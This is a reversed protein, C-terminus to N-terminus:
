KQKDPKEIIIREKEIRFRFGGTDALIKMVTEISNQLDLKGSIKDDAPYDKPLVIKVNYYREVKRLVSAVSEQRYTLWGTVWTTYPDVDPEEMVTFEGAARQFVAKQGPKLFVERGNRNFFTPATLSISGEILVTEMNKEVPYASVNFKTGTVKIDMRGADVIFPNKDHHAVDFYAEGEMHVKRKNGPYLTPFALRSGSNLWVITGDALHLEAKKGFPMIIENMNQSGKVPKNGAIILSDNVIFGNERVSIKSYEQALYIEEGDPLLIFAEKTEFRTLFRYDEMAKKRNLFALSGIAIILMVSAAWGITRNLKFIKEKKRHRHHYAEIKEWLSKVTYADAPEYHDHLVTLIRRAKEVEEGFGPHQEVMNKWQRDNENRTVWSVFADEELLQEWNYELFKETM